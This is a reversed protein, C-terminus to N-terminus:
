GFSRRGRGINQQRLTYRPTQRPLLQTYLLQKSYEWEYLAKTEDLGEYCQLRILERGTASAIAKALETKGVGAPGETLLPKELQQMLYVTTAIENNAIYQQENLAQMIEQPSAYSQTTTM